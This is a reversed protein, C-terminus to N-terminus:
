KTNESVLQRLAESTQQVDNYIVNRLMVKTTAPATVLVIAVIAV